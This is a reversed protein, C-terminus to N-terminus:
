YRTLIPDPTDIDSVHPNVLTWANYRSSTTPEEGQPLQQLQELCALVDRMLPREWPNRNLCLYALMAVKHVASAPPADEALLRPDVISLVRKKNRLTPLAWDVLARELSRRGTLLELLVVGYGYVNSSATTAVHGYTAAAFSTAVPGDSSSTLWFDSLKANFSSDLLISSSKFDRYIVPVPEAGHLFALGRAAGLAVKMRTAWPLPPPMTSFLRSEVSGIAMYEFVLVRHEGECCYGLLKVLNPHSLQGLFLVEALWEQHSKFITNSGLVKISVPLPEGTGAPVISGSYVDRFSGGGSGVIADVPFDNAVKRLEALSFATLPNRAVVGDGPKSQLKGKKSGDRASSPGRQITAVNGSECPSKAPHFEKNLKNPLVGWCAFWCMPMPFLRRRRDQKISSDIQDCSRSPKRALSKGEPIAVANHISTAGQKNTEIDPDCTARHPSAVEVEVLEIENLRSSVDAVTHRDLLLDDLRSSSAAPDSFQPIVEEISDTRRVSISLHRPHKTITDKFVSEAAERNPEEAGPALGIRVGVEQLNLLHEVGSLMHGYQEGSHANFELKLRRLNPTAESQFALRLIGCNLKLYQLVPFAASNFTISEATPQKVYLSLVTLELLRSIRYIDDKRLERVVIKLVRLKQLQGIWEPLRSFICIPPLLEFKNLFIPPSCVISSCDKYISTCSVGPALTLSKLNGHKGISSALAVLNRELHDSLVTSCIMHLDQLSTMEGLSRVNDESNSSLDFSQLTRLSKLHGVYDPLKINGQIHLHLLKPLQVIDSPVNQISAYIELTELYKLGRMKVPLKIITDTIIRIYRLQFLIDIGSLDFQKQDGWFELILVRLLKFEAISPLCEVPGYFTLSRVSSLTFGEPKTAYKANSFSLSLRRVKACLKPITESYDIVTAFNDEISERRIVEFITSHMTYFVVEDSFNIHNPQVLGRSVLEDFYCEAVENTCKGSGAAIFGEATWQKVLDAKLFTHGEPYLSFYQLCTKLQQSLSCYSLGIIEKIMDESSLNNKSSLCEKVHHWLESNDLQCAFVSAIIITALPLGSCKRIIDESYKKMQESFETKSGLVRNFFLEKSDDTSLPDVKFIGVQVHFHPDSDLMSEPEKIISANPQYDCCELAVEEIDTTILVRSCHVREPFASKIIDWSTTEWLGDIVIFYRKHQLRIRLNDVLEQVPLGCPPRQHHRQVQSIISRLLRRTDPVKSARVFARLEFQGGIERYVEQALTSKGVGAPGLISVVKLQGEAKNVNSLPKLWRILEGRSEDMGVLDTVKGNFSPFQDHQGDVVMCSPNLALRWLEYREHRERAQKVLTRFQKIVSLIEKDLGRNAKAMLNPFMKSDVYDEMDYSLERVENMWCKAMANPGERSLDVLFSNLEQLDQKLQEIGDKLAKPLQHEPSILQTHLKGLLSGM